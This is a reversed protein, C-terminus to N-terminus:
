LLLFYDTLCHSVLEFCDLMRSFASPTRCGTEALSSTSYSMYNKLANWKGLFCKQTKNRTLKLGLISHLEKDNQYAFFNGM